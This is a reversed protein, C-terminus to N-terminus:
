VVGEKFAKYHAAAEKVLQDWEETTGPLKQPGLILMAVMGPHKFEWTGPKFFETVFTIKNWRVGDCEIFTRKDNKFFASSGLTALIAEHMALVTFDDM